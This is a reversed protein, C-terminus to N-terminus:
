LGVAGGTILDIVEALNMNSANENNKLQQFYEKVQEKKMHIIINTYSM